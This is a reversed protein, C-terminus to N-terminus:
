LESTPIVPKTSDDSCLVMLLNGVIAAKHENSLAVIREKEIQTLALNVMTVAGEVIKERAAIIAEAQQRKLMVAAIEPAYALYNIRAEVVKIGVLSLRENITKELLENIIQGGSRLTVGEQGDSLDYAYKGAVERLAADAQVSVFYRFASAYNGDSDLDFVSKYTDDVKWVLVMGILIPNGTVDNVKIPNVDLNSIRMSIKRRTYLPIIWHFGVNKITGTYKGFFLTVYSENPELKFFGLVIFVLILAWLIVWPSPMDHVFVDNVILAIDALAVLLMVFGDVRLGRFLYEKNGTNMNEM